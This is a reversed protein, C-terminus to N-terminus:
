RRNLVRGLLSTVGILTNLRARMFNREVAVTERFILTRDQTGRHSPWEPGGKAAPRGTRAFELWYDSVRRAFARDQDSFTGKTDEGLDGTDLAYV